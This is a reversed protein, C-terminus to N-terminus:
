KPLIILRSRNSSSSSNKKPLVLNTPLSEGRNIAPVENNYSPQPASYTTAPAAQPPSVTQTSGTTGLLPIDDMNVAQQPATNYTPAAPASTQTSTIPKPASRTVPAAARPTDNFFPDNLTKSPKKRGNGLGKIKLKGTARNYYIHNGNAVQGGQRLKAQQRLDISNERANVYIERGEGEDDTAKGDARQRFKAPNGYATANNLQGNQYDAVLKDAKIKLSGQVIRVNGIFVRKGTKFDIEVDDATIDAAQDRDNSLAHAYQGNAAVLLATILIAKTKLLSTTYKNM